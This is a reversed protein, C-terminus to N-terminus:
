TKCWVRLLGDNGSPEVSLREGNPGSFNMPQHIPEIGVLHNILRTAIKMSYATNKGTFPEIRLEQGTFFALGESCIADDNDCFLATLALVPFSGGKLWGAIIAAFAAPAVAIRAPHWAIAIVADLRALRAALGAMIRVVPLMQEAGRLQEGPMLTIAEATALAPKAGPGFFHAITPLPVPPAPALGALDFTLGTALLEIWGATPDQQHSVAFGGPGAHDSRSLRAIDDATPRQGPEFMLSLRAPSPAQWSATPDASLLSSMNGSYGNKVCYQQIMSLFNLRLSVFGPQSHARNTSVQNVTNM